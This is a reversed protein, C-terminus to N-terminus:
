EVRKPLTRAVYEDISNNLEQKIIAKTYPHQAVVLFTQLTQIRLRLQRTRIDFMKEPDQFDKETFGM